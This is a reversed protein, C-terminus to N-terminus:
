KKKQRKRTKKKKQQKKKTKAKKEANPQKRKQADGSGPTEFYGRYVELVKSATEEVAKRTMNIVTWGPHSLFIRRAWQAERRIHRVDGYDADPSMRLSEMRERRIKMLVSPDISLGFVRKPDVDDLEPPYPVGLVVPVNAVRYGRHAIYNSLPTKSTRSIGVIVIEAKHLNKPHRGDDNYVAFEVAEIRRFYDADLEHGLGPMALPDRGMHSTLRSILPGLLDVAAVGHKNVPVKVKARLAPGVLTYALLADLAAAQKVCQELDSENLVHSVLLVASDEFKGFQALGAKATQQATEGTADSVALILPHSGATM